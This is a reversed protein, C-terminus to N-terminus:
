TKRLVSINKRPSTTLEATLIYKLIECPLTAVYDPSTFIDMVTYLPLKRTFRDTFFYDWFLFSTMEQGQGQGRIVKFTM